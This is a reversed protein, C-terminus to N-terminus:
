VQGDRVTRLGAEVEERVRVDEAFVDVGGGDRLVGASEHAPRAPGRTQRHL